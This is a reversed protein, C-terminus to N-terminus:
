FSILYDKRENEDRDLFSEPDLSRPIGILMPIFGSLSLRVDKVSFKKMVM